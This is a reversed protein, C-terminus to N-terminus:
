ILRCSSAPMRLAQAITGHDLRTRVTNERIRAFHKGTQSDEAGHRALRDFVLSVGNLEV